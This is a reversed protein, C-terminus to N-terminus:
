SKPYVASLESCGRETCTIKKRLFFIVEFCMAIHKCRLFYHTCQNPRLIYTCMCVICVYTYKSCNNLFDENVILDSKEIILRDHILSGVIMNTHVYIYM